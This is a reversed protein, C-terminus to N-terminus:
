AAKEQERWHPPYTKEFAPLSKIRDMWATIVPYHQSFPLLGLQLHQALPKGAARQLIMTFPFVWLDAATVTKGVLWEKDKLRAELNGLEDRLKEAATNLEEENGSVRDFFIAGAIQRVLPDMYYITESLSQMIRAKDTANEGMLAPSPFKAELYTMIALSESLKMEGDVLAPILGRPSIQLFDPKKTDKESLSLLKSNYGAKKLELALMIRWAYPSGSIWYLDMAM